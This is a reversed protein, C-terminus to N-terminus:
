PIGSPSFQPEQIEFVYLVQEEDLIDGYLPTGVEPKKVYKMKKLKVPFRFSPVLRCHQALSKQILDPRHTAIYVTRNSSIWYAIQKFFEPTAKIEPLLITKKHFFYKLPASIGTVYTNPYFLIVSDRDFHASLAKTTNIFGQFEKHTLLGSDINIAFLSVVLFGALGISIVQFARSKSLVQPRSARLLRILAYSACLILFPFIVPIYRRFGWPFVPQNHLSLFVYYVMPFSATLVLFLVSLSKKLELFRSSLVFGNIIAILGILGMILGVPTLFSQLIVLTQKQGILGDSSSYQNVYVLVFLIGILFPSFVRATKWGTGETNQYFRPILPRSKVFLAMIVLVLAPFGYFILYGPLHWHAFSTGFLNQILGKYVRPMFVYSPDFVYNHTLAWVYPILFSFSFIGIMRPRLGETLKIFLVLGVVAWATFLSDLRVLMLTSLILGSCVAFFSKQHKILLCVAFLGSFVLLQTLIEACPYRAFWIQPFSITLLLASLLGAEWSFLHKAASYVAMVALLALLPTLYLFFKIGLLSYFVALLVPYFDLYQFEIQHTNFDMYFGFDPFQLNKPQLDYFLHKHQIEKLLPERGSLRNTQAISAGQSVFVVDDQHLTINEGPPFFLWVGTILIVALLLTRYSLKPRSPTKFSIKQKLQLIWVFCVLSFVVLGAFLNILSFIGLEALILGMWGSILLSTLVMIFRTEFLDVSTKQKNLLNYLLFGPIFVVFPFAIIQLIM